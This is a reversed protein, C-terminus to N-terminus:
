LPIAERREPLTGGLAVRLAEIAVQLRDRICM